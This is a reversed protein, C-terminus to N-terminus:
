LLHISVSAGEPFNQIGIGISLMIASIATYGTLGLSAAVFAVGVAVGEPINHLTISSILLFSRKKGNNIEKNQKSYYSTFCRDAIIILAGGFLFGVTPWLWATRQTTEALEVAPLLLSFFSAAIMVGAAFSLMFNLVNKKPKKFCFVLAAGAATVLWTFLGAILAQYFYNLNSFAEFM